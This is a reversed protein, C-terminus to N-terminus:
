TRKLNLKSNNTVNKVVPALGHEQSLHFQSGINGTISCQSFIYKHHYHTNLQSDWQKQNTFRSAGFRQSFGDYCVGHLTM